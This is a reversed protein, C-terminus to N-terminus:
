KNKALFQKEELDEEQEELLEEVFKKSFSRCEEFTMPPKRGDKNITECDLSNNYICELKYYLSKAKINEGIISLVNINKAEINNAKIRRANLTEEVTLDQCNIRCQPKGEKARINKAIINRARITKSTQVNDLTLDICNINRGVWLEKCIISKANLHLSCIIIVDPLDVDFNFIACIDRGCHIRKKGDVEELLELLEDQTNFVKSPMSFLDRGTKVEETMDIKKSEKDKYDIEKM